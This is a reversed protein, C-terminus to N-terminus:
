WTTPSFWYTLALVFFGGVMLLAAMQWGSRSLSYAGALILAVGAFLAAVFAVDEATSSIHEGAASYIALVLWVLAAAAALVLAFTAWPNTRMTVMM